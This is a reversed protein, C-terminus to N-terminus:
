HYYDPSKKLTRWVILDHQIWLTAGTQKLFQDMAARSAATVGAAAEEPPMKGYTREAPYHYLDGSLVVPGTKGLKLFLCQHGPTRGPTSKIVVTGDGFVDYDGTLKICNTSDSPTLM